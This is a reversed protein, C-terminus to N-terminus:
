VEAPCTRKVGWFRVNPTAKPIAAKPWFCVYMCVQALGGITLSLSPM